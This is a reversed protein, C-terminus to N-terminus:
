RPLEMIRVPVERGDKDFARHEYTINAPGMTARDWKFKGPTFVRLYAFGGHVEAEFWRRPQDDVVARVQIRQVSSLARFSWESTAGDQDLGSGQGSDTVVPFSANPGVEPNFEDLPIYSSAPACFWEAGDTRRYIVVDLAQQGDTSRRAYLVKQIDAKDPNKCEKVVAHARSNTLAGRDTEFPKQKPGPELPGSSSPRPTPSPIATPLPTPEASAPTPSASPPKAVQTEPTAPWLLAATALLAVVVLAAVLGLMWRNARHDRRDLEESLIATRIREASEPPLTREPLPLNASM